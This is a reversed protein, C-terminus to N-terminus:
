NFDIIKHQNKSDYFTFISFSVRYVTCQGNVSNLFISIIVLYWEKLLYSSWDVGVPSPSHLLFYAIMLGM